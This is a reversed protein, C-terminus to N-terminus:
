SFWSLARVTCNTLFLKCILVETIEELSIRQKFQLLHAVPDAKRDFKDLIPPNFEKPKVEQIIWSTFPSKSIGRIAELAKDISNNTSFRGIRKAVEEILRKSLDKSSIVKKEEKQRQYNKEVYRLTKRSNVNKSSSEM